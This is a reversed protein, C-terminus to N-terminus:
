LLYIRREGERLDFVIPGAKLVDSGLLWGFEMPTGPKLKCFIGKEWKRGGFEFDVEYADAKHKGWWAFFDDREGIYRGFQASRPAYQYPAGADLIATQPRGEVTFQVVPPM